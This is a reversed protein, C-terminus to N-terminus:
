LVEKIIKMLTEIADSISTDSTNAKTTTSTNKTIAVGGDNFMNFLPSDGFHSIFVNSEDIPATPEVPEIYAEPVYTRLVTNFESTNGFMKKMFCLAIAKSKDPIDKEDCKVTTKTGDKWFVITAPGNFIINKVLDDMRPAKRTRPTNVSKMPNEKEVLIANVITRTAATSYPLFGTVTVNNDYTHGYDNTIKYTKGVLLKVNPAVKYHYECASSPFTVKVIM